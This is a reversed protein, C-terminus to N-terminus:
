LGREKLHTSYHVQLSGTTRHPFHRQIERWSLKPERQAKLEVLLDEEERSFRAGRRGGYADGSIPVTLSTVDLPSLTAAQGSRTYLDFAPMHITIVEQSGMTKQQVFCQIPRWEGERNSMSTPLNTSTNDTEPALLDLRMGKRRRVRKRRRLATTSEMETSHTSSRPTLPPSLSQSGRTRPLTRRRRRALPPGDSDSAEVNAADTTGASHSLHARDYTSGDSPGTNASMDYAATSTNDQEMPSSEIVIPGASHRERDDILQPQQVCNGEEHLSNDSPAIDMNPSVPSLGATYLPPNSPDTELTRPPSPPQDTAPASISEAGRFAEWLALSAGDDLRCDQVAIGVEESNYQVDLEVTDSVGAPVSEMQTSWVGLPEQSM